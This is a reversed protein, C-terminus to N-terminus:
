WHIYSVKILEADLGEIKAPKSKDTDDVYIMPLLLKSTTCFRAKGGNRIDNINLRIATNSTPWFGRDLSWISPIVPTGGPVWNPTFTLLQM